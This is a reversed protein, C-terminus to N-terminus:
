IAKDKLIRHKAEQHKAEQTGTGQSRPEWPQRRPEQPQRKPKRHQTAKGTGQHRPELRAEKTRAAAEETGM